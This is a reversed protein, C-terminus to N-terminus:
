NVTLVNPELLHWSTENNNNENQNITSQYSIVNRTEISNPSEIKPLVANSQIIQHNAHLRGNIDEKTNDTGFGSDDYNFCETKIYCPYGSLITDFDIASINKDNTERGM